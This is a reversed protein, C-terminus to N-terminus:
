LCSLREEDALGVVCLSGNAVNDIDWGQLLCEDDLVVTRHCDTVSYPFFECDILFGKWIFWVERGVAEGTLWIELSDEVNVVASIAGKDVIVNADKCIDFSLRVGYRLAILSYLSTISGVTDINITSTAM